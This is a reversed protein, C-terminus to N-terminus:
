KGRFIKDRPRIRNLVPNPHRWNHIAEREESVGDHVIYGQM